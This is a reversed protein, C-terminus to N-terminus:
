TKSRHPLICLVSSYFPHNRAILNRFKSFTDWHLFSRFDSYFLHAILYFAKGPDYAWVIAVTILM